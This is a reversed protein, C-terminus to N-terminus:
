KKIFAYGVSVQVVQNRIADAAADDNIDSIGINYRASANFQLPLDIGIGVSFSIDSNKLTEKVDQVNGVSEVEATTLFGFQPGAQLNLGGILYFKVMIPINFYDYNFDSVIGAVDVESGQRSFLVEPQIAIKSLKLMVFAGGHFGTRNSPDFTNIDTSISNFNLGGKIGLQFGQAQMSVAALMICCTLIITKKM